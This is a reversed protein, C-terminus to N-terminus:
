ILFREGKPLMNESGLDLLVEAVINGILLGTVDRLSIEEVGNGKVPAYIKLLIAINFYKCREGEVLGLYLYINKSVAFDIIIM